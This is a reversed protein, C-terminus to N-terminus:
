GGAAAASAPIKVRGKLNETRGSIGGEENQMVWRWRLEYEGTVGAYRGTGGTITGKIEAGSGIVSGRLESFVQHGREDTWVARGTGESQSDSLGIVEARFGVGLGRQGTLILSGSLSFTSTQRGPEMHLTHRTGTASWTGEFLRWEGPNLAPAPPPASCSTALLCVLLAWRRSHRPRATM